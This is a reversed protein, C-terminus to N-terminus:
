ADVFPYYASRATLLENYNETVNENKMDIGANIYNVNRRAADLASKAAQYTPDSALASALAANANSVANILNQHPSQAAKFGSTATKVPLSATIFDDAYDALSDVHNQIPTLEAQNVAGTEDATLPFTNLTNTNDRFMINTGNGKQTTQLDTVIAALRQQFQLGTM